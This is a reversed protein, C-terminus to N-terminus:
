YKKGLENMYLMCEVNQLKVNLALTDLTKASLALYLVILLPGPWVRYTLYSNTLVIQIEPEGVYIIDIVNGEITATINHKLYIM